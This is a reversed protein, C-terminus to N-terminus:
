KSVTTKTNKTIAILLRIIELCDENISHYQKKTVYETEKLLELWYESEAAEKLAISMKSIFDAKSQAYVGESVNAGVSTGSRLLQKSIVYEHKEESLYKYMEVIRIAFRKSKDKIVNEKM